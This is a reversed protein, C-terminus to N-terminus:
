GRLTWKDAEECLSHFDDREDDSMSSEYKEYYDDMHERPTKSKESTSTPEDYKILARHVEPVIVTKYGKYRAADFENVIPIANDGHKKRFATTVLTSKSAATHSVVHQVDPAGSEVLEVFDEPRDNALRAWLKSTSWQLEFSRVMRRDRDLIIESPKFNYGYKIEEVICVFLGNVYVKGPRGKLVGFENEGTLTLNSHTIAAVDELSLGSVIFILSSEPAPAIDIALIDAGFKRSKKIRPTWVENGNRITVKYGLRLLVLCALKYGEGFQGISGEPKDSYGMLLSSRPIVVGCSALTFVGEANFHHYMEGDSDLANQFLERIAETLGWDKVYTTAIPLDITKSM